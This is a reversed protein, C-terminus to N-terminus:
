LLLYLYISKDVCFPTTFSIKFIDCTTAFPTIRFNPYAYISDPRLSRIRTSFEDPAGRKQARRRHVAIPMPDSRARGAISGSAVAFSQSEGTRKYVRPIKTRARQKHLNKDSAYDAIAIKIATYIGIFTLTLLLTQM